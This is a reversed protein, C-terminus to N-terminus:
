LSVTREEVWCRGDDTGREVWRKKFLVTFLVFSTPMLVAVINWHVVRDLMPNIIASAVTAIAVIVAALLVSRSWARKDVRKLSPM